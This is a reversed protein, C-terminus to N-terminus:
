GGKLFPLSVTFGISSDSKLFTGKLLTPNLLSKLPILKMFTYMLFLEM